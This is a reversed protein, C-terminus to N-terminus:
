ASSPMRAQRKDRPSPSTYLLCHQLQALEVQLRGEHTRARQAFIDLILGTRDLVRCKVARELNREQGASLGHNFLVVDAQHERVLDALEEAKGSGIFLAPDPRDRKGLLEVVPEVGSSTVLHHFEDLDERGLADPLDIHVLM